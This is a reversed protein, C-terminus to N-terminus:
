NSTCVASDPGLDPCASLDMAPAAELALNLFCSRTRGAADDENGVPIGNCFAACDERSEFTPGGEAFSCFEVVGTFGDARVSTGPEAPAGVCFQDCLEKFEVCVNAGDPSAHGCHVGDVDGTANNAHYVRCALSDDDPVRDGLPIEAGQEDRVVTRDYKECAELCQVRDHGSAGGAFATGPCNEEMLDCYQACDQEEGKGLVCSALLAASILALTHKKM